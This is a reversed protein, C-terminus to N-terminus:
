CKTCSSKQGKGKGFANKRTSFTNKGGPSDFVSPIEFIRQEKESGSDTGSSGESESRVNESSSDDDDVQADVLLGGISDLSKLVVENDDASLPSKAPSLLANKNRIDASKWRKISKVKNADEPDDTISRVTLSEREELLSIESDTAVAKLDVSGRSGRLSPVERRKSKSNGASSVRSVITDREFLDFTKGSPGIASLSQGGGLNASKGTLILEGQDDLIDMALVRDMDSLNPILYPSKLVAATQAELETDIEIRASCIVEIDDSYELIGDEERLATERAAKESSNTGAMLPNHVGKRSAFSDPSTSYLYPISVGNSSENGFYQLPSGNTTYSSSAKSGEQSEPSLFNRKPLFPPLPQFDLVPKSQIDGVPKLQLQQVVQQQKQLQQNQQQQRKKTRRMDEVNVAKRLEGDNFLINFTGDFNAKIVKGPYWRKSGNQVVCLADVSDDILYSLPEANTLPEPSSFQSGIEKPSESAVIDKRIKASGTEQQKSPSPNATYDTVVINSNLSSDDSIPIAKLGLGPSSNIGIRKSASGQIAIAHTSRKKSFSRRVSKKAGSSNTHINGKFNKSASSFSRHSPLERASLDRRSSVAIGHSQFTSINRRM